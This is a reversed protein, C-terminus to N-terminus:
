RNPLDSKLCLNSTRCTALRGIMDLPNNCDEKHIADLCDNLEKPDIGRPCDKPTLDDRMDAKIKQTCIDRSAYHKDSGINNCTAERACRAAVVRDIASENPVSGVNAGTVTTSGRGEREHEMKARARERDSKCGAVAVLCLAPVLLRVAHNM